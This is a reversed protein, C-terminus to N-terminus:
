PKELVGWLLEYSAPLLGQPNRYREYAATLSVLRRRGALANSRDTNLNHAGLAKLERMLDTVKVYHLIHSERELLRTALGAQEIAQQYQKKLFFNNVHQKDDVALWARKLEGLTGELLTSFVFLGGPKLVRRIEAMLSPLDACWQIALSSFILDVSNDKLALREADSALWAGLNPHHNRAYNIMEESLDLGLYSVHQFRDILPACFYGTGCGLDLLTSPRIEPIKDLLVHGAWRQFHAVADYTEAAKGFSRAIRTKDIVAKDIVSM